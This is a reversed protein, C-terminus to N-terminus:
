ARSESCSQGKSETFCSLKSLHWQQLYFGAGLELCSPVELGGPTGLVRFGVSREFGESTGLNSVRLGELAWGRFGGLVLELGLLQLVLITVVAVGWVVFSSLAGGSGSHPEEGGLCLKKGLAEPIWLIM